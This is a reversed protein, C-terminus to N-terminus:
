PILPHISFRCGLDHTASLFQSEILNKKENKQLSLSPPNFYIHSNRSADLLSITSSKNYFRIIVFTNPINRDFLISIYEM